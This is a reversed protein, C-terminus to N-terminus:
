QYEFCYGYGSRSMIYKGYKGLKKRLRTINVDVTRALVYVEDEWVLSLLEDRTFVRGPHQMLTYLINFEKKTLKVPKNKVLIKKRTSDLELDNIKINKQTKEDSPTSRRLIAKVRVIVERISFPKTIYDDAGVSFGTITDNETDKATLFIVPTKLKKRNKIVDALKLGSMGSMMIDLIFLNYKGLPKSLAEEASLVTDVYFGENELNFRLIECIDEEDDVVLINLENM